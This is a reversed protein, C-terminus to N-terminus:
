AGGLTYTVVRTINTTGVNKDDFAFSVDDANLTVDDSNIIGDLAPTVSPTAFDTGDYTKEGFALNVVTLEKKAVTLTKYVTAANYNANEATSATITATGAGIITLNSGDGSVTAVEDDSSSYSLTVGTGTATATLAPAADGYTITPEAATWTIIPTGKQVNITLEKTATGANTVAQITFTANGATTPTGSIVGNTTNISLGAPLSGASVSWTATLPTPFGITLSQNYAVDVKADPLSTTSIAPPLYLTATTNNSANRVFTNKYESVTTLKLEEATSAAPLWFYVVGSANTKVDKIGYAGGTPTGTACTTGNISGATIATVGTLEQLTLRSLYVNSTGNTAQKTVKPSSPNKPKITGGKIILTGGADVGIDDTNADDNDLIVTGGNITVTGNFTGYRSRGISAAKNGSGRYRGKATVTGGNITISMTVEQGTSFRSGIGACNEGAIANVTGSNITVSGTEHNGIGANVSGGQVNITGEGQMTLSAGNGVDIGAWIGHEGGSYTCTLNNTGTSTLTVTSNEGIALPATASNLTVNNLTINVNSLGNAVKISSITGTSTFTYNGNCEILANESTSLNSSNGRSNGCYIVNNIITGNNINTITGNNILEDSGTINITGNNTLTVGNNVTLSTGTPINVTKGAPLTIDQTLTVNGIITTENTGILVLQNGTEGGSGGGGIDAGGSGGNATVNANIIIINGGSGSAGGGGIGAGGRAGYNGGNATVIGGIITINGGAAGLGGGIGAGGNFSNATITGGMITIDGSPSLFGGGIGAASNGIATLSGDTSGSALKSDITLTTGGPAEIGASRSSSNLNNTGSLLLTVNAGGHLLFASVMYLGDINLNNITVTVTANAAVDIRRGNNVTGTITIDAGDNVTLVTGNWSYNSSNGNGSGTELNFTSQAKATLVVMMCVVTFLSLLNKNM